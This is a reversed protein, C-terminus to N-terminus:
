TQADTAVATVGLQRRVEGLFDERKLSAKKLITRTRGKLRRVDARSLDKATLVVVPVHPETDLQELFEFGDMEPMLLDLVVLTPQHREVLELGARGNTAELVTWGDHRLMRGLLERDNADDDIVLVSGTGGALQRRLVNLLRERGVPKVLYDSAGAQLGRAREDIMTIMVVPVDRLEADGKLGSLVAWGDHGPMLVDLTIVDPRTQRALRLGESGSAAAHVRFGERALMRVLVDRSAVDDDIVLVTGASGESSADAETTPVPIAPERLTVPVEAPLGVTFRTGVGAESEVAIDGGMLEAFRKSIALGLGTGGYKRAGEASAQTFPQFLKSMQDPTMGIGTDRVHLLLWPRGERTTREASLEITGHETFKAANGLLNLLIERVRTVDALMCGLNTAFQRRLVNGGRAVLPEVTDAVEHLIASLEFSEATVEMKGAEIKSLDLIDNILGLLHKGASRIRELDTILGPRAHGEEVAEEVLMESYGIIANLPTRLEHSMSALFRSKAESASEAAEKAGELDEQAHRREAIEHELQAHSEQLEISRARLRAAMDNFRAAIEGLEDRNQIAIRHELDGAGIRDVGHRLGDVASLVHRSTAFAALVGLLTSILFIAVTVTTVTRDTLAFATSAAVVRQREQEVAAPLQERLLEQAIQEASVSAVVAGAPDVGMNEYFRTWHTALQRAARELAAMATAGEPDAQAHLEAIAQTLDAVDRAFARREEDRPSEAVGLAGAALDVLRKQDELRNAIDHLRTERVLARQLAEFESARRAAGWYYAGMNIAGLALLTGFAIGLNTRISRSGLRWFVPASLWRLPSSSM